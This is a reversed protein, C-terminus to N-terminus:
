TTPTAGQDVPVFEFFLASMLTNGENAAADAIGAPVYWTMGPTCTHWEAKGSTKYMVEGDPGYMLKGPNDPCTLEGTEVYAMSPYPLTASPISAGPELTFRSLRVDVPGTPMDPVIGGVLLSTFGVGEQAPPATAVCEGAAMPTSEQAAVSELGRGALVTAGGGVILRRVSARRSITSDLDSAIIPDPQSYM